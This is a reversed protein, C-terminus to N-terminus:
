VPEFRFAGRRLEETPTLTPGITGDSVWQTLTNALAHAQKPSITIGLFLGIKSADDMSIYLESSGNDGIADPNNDQVTFTRHQHDISKLVLKHNM